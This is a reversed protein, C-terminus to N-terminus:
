QNLHPKLRTALMLNADVQGLAPMRNNPVFHIPTTQIRQPTKSQMGRFQLKPM